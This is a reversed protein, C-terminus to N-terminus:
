AVLDAYDPNEAVFAKVFPCVPRVREGKSRVDDLMSRVLHHGLGRGGHAPDIEVHPLVLVDGNRRYDSLGVRAGDLWLEYRSADANDVLEARDADATM